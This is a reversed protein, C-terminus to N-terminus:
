ALGAAWAELTRGVAALSRASVEDVDDHLTHHWEPFTRGDDTLHILDVAPVGKEVFPVHDDVISPGDADVFQSHALRKATAYVDAQVAKGPGMRSYGERPLRLDADGVM